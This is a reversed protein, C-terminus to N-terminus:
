RRAACAGRAMAPARHGQAAPRRLAPSLRAVLRGRFRLQRSAIARGRNRGRPSDRGMLRRRRASALLRRRARPRNGRGRGGRRGRAHRLPHAPRRRLRRPSPAPSARGRARRPAEALRAAAADSQLEQPLRPRQLRRLDGRRAGRELRASRRAFIARDGAAAAGGGRRIADHFPRAARRAHSQARRARRAPIKAGALARRRLRRRSPREGRSGRRGDPRRPRRGRRDRKGCAVEISGIEGIPKRQLAFAQGGPQECSILGISWIADRGVHCDRFTTMSDPPSRGRTKPDRAIPASPPQGTAEM